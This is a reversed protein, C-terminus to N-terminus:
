DRAEKDESVPRSGSRLLEWCFILLIDHALMLWGSM